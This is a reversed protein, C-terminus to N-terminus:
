LGKKKNHTEKRFFDIEMQVNKMENEILENKKELEEIKKKYVVGASEYKVNKSVNASSHTRKM